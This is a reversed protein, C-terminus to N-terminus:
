MNEVMAEAVVVGPRVQPIEELRHARPFGDDLVRHEAVVRRERTV